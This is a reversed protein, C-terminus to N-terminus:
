VLLNNTAICALIRDTLTHEGAVTYHIEDSQMAAGISEVTFVNTMAAAVNAQATRITNAYTLPNVAADIGENNLLVIIVPLTTLGTQTRFNTICNTLNVEYANANTLNRSDYEGHVILLFKFSPAIGDHDTIAAKASKTKFVAQPFLEGITATSKWELVLGTNGRNHHIVYLDRALLAAIAPYLYFQLSYAANQEDAQYSPNDTYDMPSFQMALSTSHRYFQVNNYTQKYEAELDSAVTTIGTGANSQGISSIIVARALGDRNVGAVDTRSRKHAIPTIM